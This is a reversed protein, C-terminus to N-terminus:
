AKSGTNVLKKANLKREIRSNGFSDPFSKKQKQKKVWRLEDSFKRLFAYIIVQQFDRSHATRPFPLMAKARQKM